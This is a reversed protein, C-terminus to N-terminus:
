AVRDGSRTRQEGRGFRKQSEATVTRVPRLADSPEIPEPENAGLSAVAMALVGGAGALIAGAVTLAAPLGIALCVGAWALAAIAAPVFLRVLRLLM